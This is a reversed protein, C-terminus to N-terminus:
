RRPPAPVAPPFPQQQGFPNAQLQQLALLRARAALWRRRLLRRAHVRKKIVSEDSIARDSKAAGAIDVPPGGLTAIKTRASGAEPATTLPVATTSPGTASTVSVPNAPPLIAPEAQAVAPESEAPSTEV